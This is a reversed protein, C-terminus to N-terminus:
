EIGTEYVTEIDSALQQLGVTKLVEAVKRWTPQGDSNRLWHDCIEIISQEPPYQLCKELLERDIGLAIGFEYWKPTM